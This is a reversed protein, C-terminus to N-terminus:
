GYAFGKLEPKFPYVAQIRFRLPSGTINTMSIPGVVKYVGSADQTFSLDWNAKFKTGNYDGATQGIENLEFTKVEGAVAIQLSQAQATVNLTSLIVLLAHLLAKM